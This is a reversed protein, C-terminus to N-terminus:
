LRAAVQLLQRQRRIVPWQAQLLEEIELDEILMM